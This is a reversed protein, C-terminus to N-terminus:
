NFPSVSSEKDDSGYPLTSQFKAPPAVHVAADQRERLPAHISIKQESSTNSSECLRERLPAHISIGRQRPLLLALHDSGYPLTSQFLRNTNTSQKVFTAGTLSRPNFYHLAQLTKLTCCDSGYPLTSQFVIHVVIGIRDM